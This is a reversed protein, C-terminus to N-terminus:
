SVTCVSAHAMDVEKNKGRQARVTYSMAQTQSSKARDMTAECFELFRQYQLVIANNDDLAEARQECDIPQRGSMSFFSRFTSKKGLELARANLSKVHTKLHQMCVNLSSVVKDIDNQTKVLKILADIQVFFDSFAGCRVCEDAGKLGYRFADERRGICLSYHYSLSCVNM